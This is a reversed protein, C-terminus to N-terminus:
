LHSGIVSIGIGQNRFRDRTEEVGTDSVVFMVYVTRM